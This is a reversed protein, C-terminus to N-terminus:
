LSFVFINFVYDVKESCKIKLFVLKVRIVIICVVNLIEKLLIIYLNMMLVYKFVFCIIFIIYLFDEVDVCWICYVINGVFMVIEVRYIYIM